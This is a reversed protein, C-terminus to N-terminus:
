LKKLERYYESDQTIYEPISNGKSFLYKIITNNNPNYAVVVIKNFGYKYEYLPELGKILPLEWIVKKGNLFRHGHIENKNTTIVSIM